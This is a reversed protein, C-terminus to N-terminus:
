CVEHIVLLLALRVQYLGARHLAIFGRKIKLLVPLNKNALAHDAPTKLRSIM